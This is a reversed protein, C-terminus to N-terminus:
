TNLLNDFIESMTPYRNRAKGASIGRLVIPSVPINYWADRPERICEFSFVYVPYVCKYKYCLTFYM